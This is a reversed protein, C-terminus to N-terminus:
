IGYRIRKVCVLVADHRLEPVTAASSIVFSKSAAGSFPSFATLPNVFRLSNDGDTSKDAGM